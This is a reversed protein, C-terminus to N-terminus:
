RLGRLDLGWRLRPTTILVVSTGGQHFDYGDTSSRNGGSSAEVKTLLRRNRLLVFRCNNVLWFTCGTRREEPTAEAEVDNASRTLALRRHKGLVGQERPEFSWWGTWSPQVTFFTVTDINGSNTTLAKGSQSVGKDCVLVRL